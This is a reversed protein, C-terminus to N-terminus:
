RAYLVHADTLVRERLDPKLGAKPVLDVKRELIASLERSLRSVTLFGIRADPEFDVLLDIDSDKDFDDRLVSGFASLERIQNLKCFETLHVLPFNFGSATKYSTSSM